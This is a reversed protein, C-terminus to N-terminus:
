KPTEVSLTAIKWRRNKRWGDNSGLHKKRLWSALDLVCRRSATPSLAQTEQKTACETADSPTATCNMQTRSCGNPLSAPFADIGHRKRFLQHKPAACGSGCISTSKVCANIRHHEWPLLWTEQNFAFCIVTWFVESQLTMLIWWLVGHQINFNSMEKCVYVPSISNDGIAKFGCWFQYWRWHPGCEGFRRTRKDYLIVYRM